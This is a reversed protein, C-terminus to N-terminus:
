IAIDVARVLAAGIIGADNGRAATRIETNREPHQYSTKKVIERLPILLDEERENSVGGGICIVEPQLINIINSIGCALYELYLAVVARGCADGERAAMFATRGGVEELTPALRWLASEKKIDREMEEKTLAILGTAAAYREWCGRNGCNCQRGNFEIVTHGVEGGIHNFGNCVKGDMVVGGGIGTGLTILVMNHCGKASGAYAEGYAAADADNVLRVEKDWKERIMKALPLGTFPINACFIVEGKSGDVTGPIGLGLSIIEQESIGANACAQHSIAIIDDIIAEVSRESATKCKAKALIEGEKNVVGAVLNTGGVDVGIYM